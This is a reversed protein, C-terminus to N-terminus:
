ARLLTTRWRVNRNPVVVPKKLGNPKVEVLQNRRDEITKIIGFVDDRIEHFKPSKRKKNYFEM